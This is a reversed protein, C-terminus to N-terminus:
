NPFQSVLMNVTTHWLSFARRNEHGNKGTKCQLYVLQSQLHHQGKKDYFMSDRFSFEKALPSISRIGAIEEWPAIFYNIGLGYRFSVILYNETAVGKGEMWAEYGPLNGISVPGYAYIKETASQSDGLVILSASAEIYADMDSQAIGKKGDYKEPTITLDEIFKNFGEQGGFNPLSGDPMLLVLNEQNKKGFIGMRLEIEKPYLLDM